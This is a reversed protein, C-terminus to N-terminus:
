AVALNLLSSAQVDLEARRGAFCDHGSLQTLADVVAFITFAGKKEAISLAEKALKRQIGKHQLLKLVDDADDGLKTQMASKIVVAFGDRREDRKAVLREIIRRIDDLSDYVNATHKRSFEVVDVADWVIHNQCVKQFWFSQIGVTRRGVESNWVFFGPAFAEGNIEIWGTPDILFVFMDQEGAYLGTGGTAAQQPPQFDTAFESIVALLDTNFLRTYSAGHISRVQAEATFVQLPKKGPALTEDFVKAATKSSLRNITDKNVNALRCLQSFSWDNLSASRGAGLFLDLRDGKPVLQLDQPMPWHDRANERQKQCHQWLDSMTAFTEDPSRRFLENHAKKLTQM